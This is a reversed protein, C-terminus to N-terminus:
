KNGNTRIEIHKTIVKRSNHDDDNFHLRIKGGEKSKWQMTEGEMKFEDADVEKGNVRVSMVTDGNVINKEVEVDMALDEDGFLIVDHNDDYDDATFRFVGIALVLLLLYKWLLELKDKTKM